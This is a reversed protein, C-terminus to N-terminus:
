VWIAKITLIQNPAFPNSIFLPNITSCVCGQDCGRNREFFEAVAEAGDAVHEVHHLLHCGATVLGRV